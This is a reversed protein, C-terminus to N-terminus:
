RFSVTSTGPNSPVVSAGGTVSTDSLLSPQPRTLSASATPFTVQLWSVQEPTFPPPTSSMIVVSLCQRSSAFLRPLSKLRRVASFCIYVSFCKKCWTVVSSTRASLSWMWLITRQGQGCFAGISVALPSRQAVLDKGLRLLARKGM